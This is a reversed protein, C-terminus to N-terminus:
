KVNEQQRIKESLEKMKTYFKDRVDGKCRNGIKDYKKDGYVSKRTLDLIALMNKFEYFLCYPIYIKYLCNKYGNIYDIPQANEGYCLFNGSQRILRYDTKPAVICLPTFCVNNWTVYGELKKINSDNVEVPEVLDIYNNNDIEKFFSLKNIESPLMVFVAACDDSYGYDNFQENCNDLSQFKNKPLNGDCSFFLAILPDTTFDVLPTLLGYHQGLFMWEFDNQPIYISDAFERLVLHKFSDLEDVFNPFEVKYGSSFHFKPNLPDVERGWYDATEKRHRFLNPELHWSEDFQGRYWLIKNQEILSIDKLIEFYDNFSNMLYTSKFQSEKTSKKMKM